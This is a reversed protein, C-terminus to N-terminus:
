NTGPFTSSEAAPSDPQDPEGADAQAKEFEANLKKLDVDLGLVEVADKDGLKNILNLTFIVEARKNAFEIDAKKAELRAKKRAGAEKNMGELKNYYM